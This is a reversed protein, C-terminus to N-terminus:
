SSLATVATQYFKVYSSNSYNGYFDIQLKVWGSTASITSVKDNTPNSFVMDKTKEYTQTATFHEGNMTCWSDGWDSGGVNWGFQKQSQSAATYFTGYYHNSDAKSLSQNSWASMSAGSGTYGTLNAHFKVRNLNDVTAGTEAMDVTAALVTSLSGFLMLVALLLAISSKLIFSCKTKM